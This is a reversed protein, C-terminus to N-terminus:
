ALKLCFSLRREVIEGFLTCNFIVIGYMEFAEEVVRRLNYVLSGRETFGTQLMLGGLFEVGIAGILFVIGAIMLYMATKKPLSRLFPIFLGGVVASFLIGYLLWPHTEFMPLVIGHRRHVRSFNEHIGAAEDISLYLMLLCLALWYYQISRGSFKEHRYILFALVSSLLLNITSFYTPISEEEGVDILRIFGMLHKGTADQFVYGFASLVLITAVILVQTYTFHKKAIPVVIETM